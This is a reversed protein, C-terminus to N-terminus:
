KLNKVEQYLRRLHDDSMDLIPEYMFSNLHIGEPTMLVVKRLTRIVQTESSFRKIFEELLIATQNSTIAASSFSPIKALMYKEAALRIAISLVIKHEFNIGATATLCAEAEFRIMDLVTQTADAFALKANFLTNYIDDLDSQIITESDPKYHLLSTLKKYGAGDIGDKFEILNRMFAISSIRMRGDTLFNPKWVRVFVNRLGKAEVLAIESDTKYAMPCNKRPVVGRLLLSRYFDFNHTLIVLRFFPISAIDRLYEVIAYKNKYDFSDAVDDIVILTETGAEKRVTVDFIINLVYYAKL